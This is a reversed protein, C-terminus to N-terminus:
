GGGPVYVLVAGPFVSEGWCFQVVFLSSYDLLSMPSPLQFVSLASSFPPPAFFQNWCWVTLLCVCSLCHLCLTHLCYAVGWLLSPLPDCSEDGSISLLMWFQVAMCFQFVFLSSYFFM